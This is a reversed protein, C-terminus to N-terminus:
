WLLTESLEQPLNIEDKKGENPKRDDYSRHVFDDDGVSRNVAHFGVGM